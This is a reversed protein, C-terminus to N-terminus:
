IIKWTSEIQFHKCETYDFITRHFSKPFTIKMGKNSKELLWGLQWIWIETHFQLYVAYFSYSIRSRLKKDCIKNVYVM